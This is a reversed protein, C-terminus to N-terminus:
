RAPEPALVVACGGLVRWNERPWRLDPRQPPSRPEESADFEVGGLGGYSPSESTWCTRWRAGAPPALLPEPTIPLRATRGVNVVLLRDDGDLGFFRLVFAQDTLAAGDIAGPGSGVGTRPTAFVADDRRLAILDRHLRLWAAHVDHERESWDLVCRRFTAADAPRPLVAQMDPAAMSTFQALEAFRGRQVKLALEPNHDAFYVFPARAAWEQGQFLMPLQPGLLLAATMARLAGAAALQHLREGVGANALQDHNELFHVFRWPPVGLAPTGRRQRQWRYWQGQYLFGYKAAAVFERASGAYDTFYAEDRLALAVFASHHWDDNWLADLGRGGADGPAILAVDQPENENVIWTARGGLADGAARVAAGIESLVHVPSTDLIAQTADLRLGDIHFEEVWYRANAVYFARVPGARDGDFNIADGWDTHHAPNFYHPSFRPLYNGDPGLHNYVVDLVVALGLAHARDVFRRMADPPGYQCAPAFLQVGDYGWGFRGPFQHVPMVELTTVGLDALAGLHATAGDWTGERSFTGLHLEYLVQRAPETIGRWGADTWTFADPDVVASAGHPGDPQHRSAPDPFTNDPATDSSGTDGGDLRYRYRAGAAIDPVLGSWHGDADGSERALPVTREGGDLVVDVRRRDPAWVRFHVGDPTLDAGVPLRRATTRETM